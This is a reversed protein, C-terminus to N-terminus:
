VPKGREATQLEVKPDGVPEVQSQALAELYLEPILHEVAERHLADRGVRQELVHEPAKGPRFGPIRVRSGLHSVAHSWAHEYASTPAEIKLTVESAPLKEVVVTLEDSM